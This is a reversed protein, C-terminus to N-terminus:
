TARCSTVRNYYNYTGRSPIITDALGHYTIMKGGHAKFVRLDPNDTGTVAFFKLESKLFARRFLLHFVPHFSM